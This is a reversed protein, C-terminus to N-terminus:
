YFNTACNHPLSTKQSGNIRVSGSLQVPGEVRFVDMNQKGKVILPEFRVIRYYYIDLLLYDISNASVMVAVSKMQSAPSINNAQQSSSVDRPVLARVSEGGRRFLM